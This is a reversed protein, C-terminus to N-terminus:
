EIKRMWNSDGYDIRHNQYDLTVFFDTGDNKIPKIYMTNGDVRFTYYTSEPNLSSYQRVTNEKIVLHAQYSGQRYVWHGQLWDLNNSSSEEGVKKKMEEIYDKMDSIRNCIDDVFWNNDELVLKATQTFSYGDIDNYYILDASAEKDDINHIQGVSTKDYGESSGSLFEGSYWLGDTGKGQEELDNITNYMKRFRKSFYKEIIEKESIGEGNLTKSVEGLRKKIFEESHVDNPDNKIDESDSVLETSTTENQSEKSNSGFLLWAGIAALALAIIILYLVKPKSSNYITNEEDGNVAKGCKPCFKTGDSLQTGCKECYAM